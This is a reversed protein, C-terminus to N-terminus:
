FGFRDALNEARSLDKDLAAMTKSLDVSEDDRWVKLTKLYLATLGALKIAGRLGNTQVGATELVWSMSRALHPCSIVMQKPDQAFSELISLLAPRYENLIEFRQMLIDFLQDRVSVSPDNECNELMKRDVMRGFLVLIDSKDEIQDYLEATSLEAEQAIDLLTTYAWGQTQALHLATELIKAKIDKTSSNQKQTKKAM